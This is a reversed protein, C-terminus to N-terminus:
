SKILHLANELSKRNPHSIAEERHREFMRSM